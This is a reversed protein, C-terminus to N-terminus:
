VWRYRKKKLQMSKHHHKGVRFLSSGFKLGDTEMVMLANKLLSRKLWESKFIKLMKEKSIPWGSDGKLFCCGGVSECVCLQYIFCPKSTKESHIAHLWGYRVRKIKQCVYLEKDSVWLLFYVELLLELFLILFRLLCPIRLATHSFPSYATVMRYLHHHSSYQFLYLVRHM